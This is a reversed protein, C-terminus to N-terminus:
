KKPEVRRACDLMRASIRLGAEQAEKLNVDFRVRQNEVTFAVMGYDLFDPTEGVTLAWTGKLQAIIPQLRNRESASIFLIHSHKLGQVSSRSRRIEVKRKRARM